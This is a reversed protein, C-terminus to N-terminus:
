LYMGVPAIALERHELHRAGGCPAAHLDDSEGIVGDAQPHGVPQAEGPVGLLLNLNFGGLAFQAVTDADQVGGLHLDLGISRQIVRIFEKGAEVQDQGGQVSAQALWALLNSGPQYVGDAVRMHINDTM